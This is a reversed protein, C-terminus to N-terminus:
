SAEARWNVIHTGVDPGLEHALTAFQVAPKHNRNEHIRYLTFEDDKAARQVITISGANKDGADIWGWEISRRGLRKIFSAIQDEDINGAAYFYAVGNPLEKGETDQVDYVLAVPGFPWMILLPRAGEIPKRDFRERWDHASAAYSLGPKQLQLLM